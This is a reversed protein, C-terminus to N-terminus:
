DNRGEKINVLKKLPTSLYVTYSSFHKLENENWYCGCKYCLFMNTDSIRNVPIECKLCESKKFDDVLSQLELDLNNSDLNNYFDNFNKLTNELSFM